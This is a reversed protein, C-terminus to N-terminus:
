HVRRYRRGMATAFTHLVSVIAGDDGCILALSQLQDARSGLSARLSRDELSHRSIRVLTCGDGVPKEIDAHELVDRIMQHTVGRQNARAAAHKTLLVQPM